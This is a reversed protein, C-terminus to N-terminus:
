LDSATLAERLSVAAERIRLLPSVHVAEDDEDDEDFVRDGVGLSTCPLKRYVDSLRYSAAQQSGPPAAELAFTCDHVLTEDFVDLTDTAEAASLTPQSSSGLGRAASRGHAYSQVLIYRDPLWTLSLQSRAM